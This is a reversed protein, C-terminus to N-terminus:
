PIWKLGLVRQIFAYSDAEEAIIKSTPKGIGHGASVEIRAMLPKSQKGHAKAKEYLTAIYKLTHSPVVRDDHDATLLLTAPWQGDAPIRVNHLPSYKILHEFDEKEDPCGYEPIWAGGITHKHFRLMDLVGVQNLVCGFLDPRQQSVAGMLLGGNSGGMIALRKPNTIKEKVLYEGASIFDDFVNQKNGKMGAEHWAEGYEGGGRLNAVAYVGGFHRVFLLASLSFYPMYAVGFGGYGTLLVANESNKQVGTNSITYMPIKTGDTSPYFVQEVKFSEKEMGNISVRRIEKMEPMKEIPVGTFDMRYEIMPVLFSEFALFLENEKKDAHLGSLSGIELPIQYLRRGSSAEHVYLTSKVDEFYSVLLRDGILPVAWALNSKREPILDVLSSPGGKLSMTVIKFMPADKNTKIIMRDEDHDVYEYKAELKDFIPVAEIPGTVKNGVAQLDYYYLMNYPDCGRAASIILFRGDDTVMSNTIMMDPNDTRKYVLVDEEAKTGMKHYYLSHWEHKEASTGETAGKHHPYRAYFVGSNDGMWAIGTYKAGPIVDPLDDGSSTKFKITMWDSGKESLGYAYLTGDKTFSAATRSTTGDESLTNPDFFVKGKTGVKDTQYTVYQNQLGTNHDYYYYAGRKYTMTFKEYNWLDTLRKRCDERHESKEIFPGSIANLQDVFQKTEEGDPNEMYRYPDCIKQGHYNDIVTNDKRACPYSFCDIATSCMRIGHPYKACALPPGARFTTRGSSISYGFMRRLSHAQRGGLM